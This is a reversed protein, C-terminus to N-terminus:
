IPDGATVRPFAAQHEPRLENLKLKMVEDLSMRGAEEELGTSAMM